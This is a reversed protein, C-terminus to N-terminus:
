LNYQKIKRYLTRESIKLEEAAEKRRGHYKKLARRIADKEIDDMALPADEVDSRDFNNPGKSQEIIIPTVRVNSEHPASSSERVSYDNADDADMQDSFSISPQLRRLNSMDPMRLNNNQILEFVLGKLDNLDNKMDVLLKYFIEREQFESGRMGNSNTRESPIPLNRTFMQPMQRQLAEASIEREESLVSIQEAVNKLERINGPWRYTELAFQAQDDLRITQMRYKEAFDHAFKRFLVPIDERRDKLAPVRIPVTSLRYYLDERFKGKRVREELDVNTAAIVRVDTRLVKSAGVRIFEGSELIRLLYAQTDLPMEAIEDLFITGGSVTEFYGKRDNVAGTFSGKEHGFLESNITGEPIAGCNVAIFENHKRASLAHIIKSFVEKGVGSEGTILVTLDTPAVRVATELAADLLHSTGVIGFRQKISQLNISMSM